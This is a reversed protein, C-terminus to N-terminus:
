EAIQNGFEVLMTTRFVDTMRPLPAAIYRFNLNIGDSYIPKEM